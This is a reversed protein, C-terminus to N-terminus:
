KFFNFQIIRYLAILGDKWWLLKKGEKYTRGRYAIGVEYIRTEKNRAVKATIEPEFGFSSSELTPAIERILDGRFVKYGTEMDTLNLDTCMNSVLTLLNNGVFHWFYLVRHPRDSMFRSGFVVDADGKVFPELLRPYDLPDYELDADQVLVIDGSSQMFGTKVAAGKGANVKKDFIILTDKSLKLTYTIGKRTVLRKKEKGLKNLYNVANKVTADKSGDNVIIIEKGLGASDAGLVSQITEVIFKEENYAPIVISLVKM